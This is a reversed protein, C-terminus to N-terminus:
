YFYTISVFLILITTSFALKHPFFIHYTCKSFQAFFAATAYDCLVSM